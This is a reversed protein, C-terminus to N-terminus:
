FEKLIVFEFNRKVYITYQYVITYLNFSLLLLNFQIAKYLLYCFLDLVANRMFTENLFLRTFFADFRLLNLFYSFYNLYIM